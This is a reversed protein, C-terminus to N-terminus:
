AIRRGKGGVLSRAAKRRVELGKTNDVAVLDFAASEIEEGKEAEIRDYASTFKAQGISEAM